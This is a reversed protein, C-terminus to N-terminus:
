LSKKWLQCKDIPNMGSGLPCFFAKSFSKQNVLSGIVRVEGPAHVDLKLLTTLGDKNIKECRRMGFAM